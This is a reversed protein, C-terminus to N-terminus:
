PQLRGTGILLVIALLVAVALAVLWVPYDTPGKPQSM